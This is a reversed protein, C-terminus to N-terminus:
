NPIFLSITTDKFQVIACQSILDGTGLQPDEIARFLITCNLLIKEKTTKKKFTSM